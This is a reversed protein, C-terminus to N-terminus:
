LWDLDWELFSDCADECLCAVAFPLCQKGRVECWALYVTLPSILTDIIGDSKFRFMGLGKSVPAEEFLGM